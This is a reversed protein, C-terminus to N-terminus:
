RAPFQSSSAAPASTAVRGGRGGRDYALVRHGDAILNLAFAAGMHGLGVIGVVRPSLQPTVSGDPLHGGTAHDAAPSILPKSNTSTM